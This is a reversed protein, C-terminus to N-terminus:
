SGMLAEKYSMRRPFKRTTSKFGDEAAGTMKSPAGNGNDQPQSEVRNDPQMDPDKFSEKDHGDNHYTKDDHELNETITQAVDKNDGKSQRSEATIEAKVDAVLPPDNQDDCEENDGSERPDEQDCIDCEDVVCGVKDKKDNSENNHGNNDIRPSDIYCENPSNASTELEENEEELTIEEEEVELVIEEVFSDDSLVIEYRKTSDDHNESPDNVLEEFYEVDEDDTQGDEVTLEEMDDDNDLLDDGSESCSRKLLGFDDVRNPLNPMGPISGDVTLVEEETLEEGSKVMSGFSGFSGNSYRRPRRGFSHNSNRRQQRQLKRSPSIIFQIRKDPTEANNSGNTDSDEGDVSLSSITGVSDFDNLSFASSLTKLSGNDRALYNFNTNSSDDDDDEEEEIEVDGDVQISYSSSNPEYPIGGDSYYASTGSSSYSDDHQAHLYTDTHITMETWVSYRSHGSNSPLSQSGRNPRQKQKQGSANSSSAKVKAEENGEENRDECNGNELLPLPLDACIDAGLSRRRPRRGARRSDTMFSYNNPSTMGLKEGITSKDNSHHGSGHKSRVSLPPTFHNKDFNRRQRSAKSRQRSRTTRPTTNPFSDNPYPIVLRLGNPTDGNKISDDSNSGRPLSGAAELSDFGKQQPFKANRTRRTQSRPSAFSKQADCRAFSQNSNSPTMLSLKGDSGDNRNRDSNSGPPLLGSLDISDFSRHHPFKVNRTRGSHSLSRQSTFSKQTDCRAFSHNSNSPTLLGESGDNSNPNGDSNNSGQPLLGSIDISDFSKRRTYTSNKPRRSRPSVLIQTEILTRSNNPSTMALKDDIRSRGQSSSPLMKKEGSAGDM